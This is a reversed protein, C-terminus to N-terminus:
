CVYAMAGNYFGHMCVTMVTKDSPETAKDIGQIASGQM